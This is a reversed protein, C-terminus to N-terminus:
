RGLMVLVPFFAIVFFPTCKEGRIDPNASWM